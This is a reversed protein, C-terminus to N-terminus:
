RKVLHEMVPKVSADGHFLCIGGTQRDQLQM